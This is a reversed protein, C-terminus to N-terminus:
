VSPTLLRYYRVLVFGIIIPSAVCIAMLMLNGGGFLLPVPVLYLLDEFGYGQYRPPWDITEKEKLSELGFAVFAYYVCILIAALAGYGLAAVGLESIQGLGICFFFLFAGISNCIVGWWRQRTPDEPITESLSAAVHDSLLSVAFVLGGLTQIAPYSALALLAALLAIVAGALQVLMPSVLPQSRLRLAILRGVQADLPDNRVDNGTPM